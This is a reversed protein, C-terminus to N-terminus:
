RFRVGKKVLSILTWMAMGYWVVAGLAVAWPIALGLGVAVAGVFLAAAAEAIRDMPTM